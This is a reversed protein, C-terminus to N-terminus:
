PQRPFGLEELEAAAENYPIVELELEFCDDTREIVDFAGYDIDLIFSGESCFGVFNGSDCLRSVATLPGTCNVM